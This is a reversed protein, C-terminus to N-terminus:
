IAHHYVFFRRRFSTAYPTISNEMLVEKSDPLRGNGHKAVQKIYQFSSNIYTEIQYNFLFIYVQLWADIENLLLRIM